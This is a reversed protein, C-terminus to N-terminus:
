PMTAAGEAAAPAPEGFIDRANGPDNAEMVTRCRALQAKLAQNENYLPLDYRKAKFIGTAMMVACVTNVDTCAYDALEAVYERHEPGLNIEVTTMKLEARKAKRKKAKHKKM